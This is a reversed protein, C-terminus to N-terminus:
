CSDYMWRENKISSRVPIHDTPHAKRLLTLLSHRAIRDIEVEKSKERGYHRGCCKQQDTRTPHKGITGVKNDYRIRPIHTYFVSHCRKVEISTQLQRKNM